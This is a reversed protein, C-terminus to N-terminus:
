FTQVRTPQLKQGFNPLRPESKNWDNTEPSTSPRQLLPSPNAKNGSLRDAHHIEDMEKILSAISAKTSAGHRESRHM